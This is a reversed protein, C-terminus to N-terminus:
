GPAAPSRAVPETEHPHDFQQAAVVGCEDFVDCEGDGIDDECYRHATLLVSYVWRVAHHVIGGLPFAM